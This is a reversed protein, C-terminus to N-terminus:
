LSYREKRTPTSVPTGPTFGGMWVNASAHWYRSELAPKCTAMEAAREFMASSSTTSVVCVNVGLSQVVSVSQARLPLEGSPANIPISKHLM